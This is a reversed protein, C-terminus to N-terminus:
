LRLSGASPIAGGGGARGSADAAAAATCCFVTIARGNVDTRM